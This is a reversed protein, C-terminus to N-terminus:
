DNVLVGGSTVVRDGANLGAIVQINGEDEAGLEVERRVFTWPTTEVYVSTTDSNMLIASIPIIVQDPQPIAMKVTAFMNPQLKGKPNLFAIRTKNRHTDADLFTSMFSVKGHLIQNPFAPLFVEAPLEKAILNVYQEPINATVWISKINSVTLLPSNPDNIYSGIGYNIATISGDIPARIILLSFGNKGVAKLTAKIRKFEALAQVYNNLALEIDKISNAGARNVRRARKLAERTLTLISLAKDRDSHTQALGPSRIVALVQHQKVMDGLKVKIAILRGVFPPLINVTHIPNAEVIGPFSVIHPSTSKIITKIVMHLRLPSNVPIIIKDAQRIVMPAPPLKKKNATINVCCKFLFSISLISFLTVLLIVISKHRHTLNAYKARILSILAHVKM